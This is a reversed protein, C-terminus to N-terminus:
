LVIRVDGVRRTVRERDLWELLPIAFKRSLGHQAKFAAVDLTVQRGAPPRRALASVQARLPPWRNQTSCSTGVRVLRGEQVLARMVRQAQVEPLGLESGLPGPDPPALAAARLRAEM